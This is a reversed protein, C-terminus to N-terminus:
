LCKAFERQEEPTMQSFTKSIRPFEPQPKPKPKGNNQILRLQNIYHRFGHITQAQKSEFTPPDVAWATKAIELLDIRLIGLRLLEKVAKGDRGGDFCYDSGWSEKYNESWGQIFARHESGVASPPVEKNPIPTPTPTPIPTPINGKPQYCKEVVRGLTTSGGKSRIEASKRGGESSKEKWASQKARESELRDHIMRGREPSPQFMKLVVSALTTSAGKGILRAAEEPSSPISGHQWCYSILRIYAGEEELTLM